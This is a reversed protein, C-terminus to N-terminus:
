TSPASRGSEIESLVPDEAFYLEPSREAVLMELEGVPKGDSAYADVRAKALDGSPSTLHVEYWSAPQTLAALGQDLLSVKIKRVPDPRSAPLRNGDRVPTLELITTRRFDELLDGLSFRTDGTRPNTQKEYKRGWLALKDFLDV